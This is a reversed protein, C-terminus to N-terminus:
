NKLKITYNRIELVGSWASCHYRPFLKSFASSNRVFALAFFFVSANISAHARTSKKTGDLLSAGKCPLVLKNATRTASIAALPGARRRM